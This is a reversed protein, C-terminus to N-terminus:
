AIDRPMTWRPQFFVWTLRRAVFSRSPMSLASKYFGAFRPDKELVNTTKANEAKVWSMARTGSVDELWLYPDAADTRTPQAAVARAIVVSASILLLAVRRLM